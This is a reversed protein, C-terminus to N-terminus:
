KANFYPYAGTSSLAYHMLISSADTADVNGDGNVDAAKEAMDSLPSSGGTATVTYANLALSADSADVTKNGDVDGVSYASGDNRVPIYEGSYGGSYGLFAQVWYYYGGKKYVGIGIHTLESNLINKKHGESDMWLKMVDAVNKSSNYAINEALRSYKVNDFVSFCSRGDPRTHSFTSDNISIEKARINAQECAYPYLKLPKLNLKAREQNVLILMAEAEGQNDFADSTLLPTYNKFYLSLSFLFTLATVISFLKKRM